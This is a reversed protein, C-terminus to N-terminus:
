PREFINGEVHVSSSQSDLSLFQQRKLQPLKRKGHAQEGHQRELSNAHFFSSIRLHVTFHAFGNNIFSTACNIYCNSRETSLWLM